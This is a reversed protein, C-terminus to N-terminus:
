FVECGNIRELTYFVSRLVSDAMGGGGMAGQKSVGSEEETVCGYM